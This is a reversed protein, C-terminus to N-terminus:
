TREEAFYREADMLGDPSGIEYFRQHVEFGTLQGDLSLQHYFTALDFAEDEPCSMLVDASLVGLGYDIHNMEARPASKNYEILRGNRFLVNSSDWQNGNRLVTMLAPKSSAHFADQVAGFDCPLYSDGYLVFFRGSLLPLARRLAGGTGLLKPGDHSYSVALGFRSGDGVYAEVQEGLFGLCLVVRIVGQGRLYDLQRHIFPQGGVDVLAKPITLTVPHMRTALGGALIAVPLM